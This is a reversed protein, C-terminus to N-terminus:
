CGEVHVEVSAATYVSVVLAQVFFERTDLPVVVSTDDAGASGAGGDDFGLYVPTTADMNTVIITHKRTEFEVEDSGNVTLHAAHAVTM